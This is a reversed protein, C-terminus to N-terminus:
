ILAVAAALGLWLGAAFQRQPAFTLRVVGHAGAPLLFAQQWGDVQVAPLRHGALTAQWGANFNEHVVLLSAVPADVRVTRSTTGWHQVQAGTSGAGGGPVSGSGSVSGGGFGSDRSLVVQQVQAAASSTFSLEHRSASVPVTASGCPTAPLPGGALVTTLDARVTTRLQKGDLTLVPGQGCPIVLEGAPTPLETGTLRLESIGAPLTETSGNVADGSVKDSKQLIQLTLADASVPRPLVLLGTADPRLTWSAGAASVRYRTPRSVPADLATRVVLGTIRAPRRLQLTLTPTQDGAAASWTTESLGDVVAGPRQRPDSSATSSASVRIASGADLLADLAPGPRPTVTGSVRYDAAASQSFRRWIGDDEEGARALGPRCGSAQGAATCGTRRGPAASFVLADPDGSGSVTLWRQPDVGAVAFTAVAVATGHGGGSMAAVTLRISQTVGAPVPLRQPQDDPIVDTTTTGADTRVTLASPNQGPQGAFQVTVVPDRVPAALDLEIWQGVAGDASGSEWATNPDGDVAYWPARDPGRNVYAAPDSGASSARVDAIGAYQWSSLPGADAPLYDHAPRALQFPQGATLTAALYGPHGFQIERRRVGDTTVTRVGALPGADAGFLVPASGSLGAEILNPLQEASGNARVANAVPLMSVAGSGGVVQLIQIAPIRNAVGADIVLKDTGTDRVVPGFSAVLSLGPSGRL